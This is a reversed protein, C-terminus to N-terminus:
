KCFVSVFDYEPLKLALVNESKDSSLHIEFNKGNREGTSKVDVHRLLVRQTNHM